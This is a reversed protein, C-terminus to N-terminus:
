IFESDTTEKNRADNLNQNLNYAASIFGLHTFAQPFNGLHEGQLGLQEGYLGLHNAYALMRELYFRAKELYGARSLCEIYWFSCLSFSGETYMSKYRYVLTDLVLDEEIAKLTSLWRPDKPGIFRILPMLLCSADLDESGKYQIFSNRKESWFDAFISAHIQDRVEIWKTLPMPFSSRRAMRIMRDIAVWSMLRSYLFYRKGERGEWIGNDPQNWNSCLWNVQASLKFWLDQSITEGYKNYLYISDILEGYIDLQLQQYAANGIRVPASGKYGELHDLEYETLKKEGRISYMLNLEGPRNVDCVMTEMWRIFDEAEKTFGLRILGYLSFAADRIWTYRYDWNKSGGVHEPLGFTPSAIISGYKKATLLKLLLASRNMMELWRGRYQSRAIWRRWFHITDFLSKTVVEALDDIVRDDIKGLVFDVSEGEKLTFTAYGDGERAILPITSRLQLANGEGRFLIENGRHEAHHSGRAYNFRPACHMHLPNNGRISKVRRILYNESFFGQVPMFDTIECVGEPSLFRTLLVNTDPLYIQKYKVNAMQPTIRFFGGKTKDLLAAFISPSDFEPYCMFDISGHLGVLAVTNMDGIIGYNEIPHYDM